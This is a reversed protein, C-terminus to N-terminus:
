LGRRQGRGGGRPGSATGANTQVLNNTRSPTQVDVLTGDQVKDMGELVVMDGPVLGSAIAVDNGETTKVTVPRMEATKNDRVVYVFSGQSGRQITAAPVVVASKLVDTLLRVNVFQNPYLANNKNDFIAKLKSTGTSQDIQNDATLLVGDAIMKTDDHDWAEVRLERGAHLKRLVDGLNDEPISFLVSIPEVQTIM